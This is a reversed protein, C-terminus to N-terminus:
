AHEKYKITYGKTHTRKGSIVESVVGFSLYLQRACERLSYYEGIFSGDKKYVLVPKSLIKIHNLHRILETPELGYSLKLETELNRAEKRTDFEAVINMVLDQRGYYKGVGSIGEKPKVKTHQYMRIVPRYSEGVDEVTGYLNILEYVYYKKM